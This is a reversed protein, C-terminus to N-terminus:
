ESAGSLGIQAMQQRMAELERTIASVTSAGTSAAASLPAAPAPPEMAATSGMPQAAQSSRAMSAAIHPYKEALSALQANPAASSAAGGISSRRGSPPLSAPEAAAATSGPAPPPRRKPAAVATASGAFLSTPSLSSSTANQLSPPLALPTWPMASAAASAIASATSAQGSAVSSADNSASTISAAVASLSSLSMSLSSSPAPRPPATEAPVTAQALKRLPGLPDFPAASAEAPAPAPAPASSFSSARQRLEEAKRRALDEIRETSSALKPPEIDAISPPVPPTSARSSAAHVVAPVAPLVPLPVPVAAPAASRVAARTIAEALQRKLEENEAAIKNRQDEADELAAALTEAEDKMTEVVSKFLRKVEATKEREREFKEREDRLNGELAVIQAAAAQSQAAVAAPTGASSRRSAADLSALASAAAAEARGRASQEAELAVELHAVKLSLSKVQAELEEIHAATAPNVPAAQPKALEARQREIMNNLRAREAAFLAEREDQQQRIGSLEAKCQRLQQEVEARQEREISLHLEIMDDATAAQAAALQEELDAVRAKLSAIDGGSVVQVPAAAVSATAPPGNQAALGVSTAAAEAALMADLDDLDDM